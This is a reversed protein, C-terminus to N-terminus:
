RPRSDSVTVRPGRDSVTVRPGRGIGTIPPRAGLLLLLLMACVGATAATAM